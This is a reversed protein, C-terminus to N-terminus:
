IAVVKVPKGTAVSKNAALSISLSRVADLYDSRIKSRDGTAVAEIFTRDCLFAYDNKVQTEVIRGPEFLKLSGREKYEFAFDRGWGDMGCRGNTSLFCASFIVGMLGSEFEVNVATADEIDYNPVEKMLGTQASAYVKVVEGFLNRSADFIHTTQEVAQGGSLKKQRWWYVGPMGGMWYGMIMGVKRGQLFSKLQDIIDLYRDQYGVATILNKKHVGEIIPATVKLSLAVPKEVFFPLGAEIVAKEQPGHAFPPTCVFVADLEVKKLMAKYDKFAEGGYNKAANKAREEDTDSFAVMQVDDMKALLRMHHGGIGGCGIFGVKLSM